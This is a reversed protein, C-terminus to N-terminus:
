PACRLATVAPCQGDGLCAGAALELREETGLGPEGSALQGPAVGKRIQACPSFRDAFPRACVDAQGDRCGLALDVRADLHGDGSPAARV